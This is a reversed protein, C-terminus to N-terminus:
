ARRPRCPNTTPWSQRVEPRTGHDPHGGAPLCGARYRLQSTLQPAIKSRRRPGAAAYAAAERAAPARCPTTTLAAALRSGRRARHDPTRATARRAPGPAHRRVLTALRRKGKKDAPPDDADTELFLKVFMPHM